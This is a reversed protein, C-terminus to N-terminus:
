NRIWFLIKVVIKTAYSLIAASIKIQKAFVDKSVSENEFVAWM